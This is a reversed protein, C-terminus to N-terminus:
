GSATAFSNFATTSLSLGSSTIRPFCAISSSLLWVPCNWRDASRFVPIDRHSVFPFPTPAMVNVYVTTPEAITAGPFVALAADLFAPNHLILEAGDVRVTGETVLDRRFWPPVHAVAARGSEKEEDETQATRALPIFPGADEVFRRVADRDDFAPELRIANDSVGLLM